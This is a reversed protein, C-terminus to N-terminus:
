RPKETRNTASRQQQFSYQLLFFIREYLFFRQEKEQYFLLQSRHNSFPLLDNKENNSLLKYIPM